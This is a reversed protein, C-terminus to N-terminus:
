TPGFMMCLTGLYGNTMGLLLMFVYPYADSDFFRPLRTDGQRPLVPGTLGKFLHPRDM